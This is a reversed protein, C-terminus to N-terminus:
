EASRKLTPYQQLVIAEFNPEDEMPEDLDPSDALSGALQENVLRRERHKAARELHFIVASEFAQKGDGRSDLGTEYEFQDRFLELEASQTQRKRRFIKLIRTLWEISKHQQERWALISQQYTNTKM